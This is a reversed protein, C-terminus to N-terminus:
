AQRPQRDRVLKTAFLSLSVGRGMGFLATLGKLASPVQPAVGQSLLDGGTREFLRGGPRSKRTRPGDPAAGRSNSGISGSYIHRHAPARTITKCGACDGRDRSRQGEAAGGPRLARLLARPLATARLVGAQVALRGAALELAGVQLHALGEREVAADDVPDGHQAGGVRDVAHAVAGSLEDAVAVPCAAHLRLLLDVPPTPPADQALGASLEVEFGDGALAAVPLELVRGLEPEVPQVLVAVPHLQDLDARFLRVAQAVQLM